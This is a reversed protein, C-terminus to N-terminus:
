IRGPGDRAFLLRDHLVALAGLVAPALMWEVTSADEQLGIAGLGVVGAGAILVGTRVAAPVRDRLPFTAAVVTAAGLAISAGWIV